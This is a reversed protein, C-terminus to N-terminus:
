LTSTPCPARIGRPALGTSSVLKGEHDSDHTSSMWVTVDFVMTGRRVYAALGDLAFRPVRVDARWAVVRQGNSTGLKRLVARGGSPSRSM